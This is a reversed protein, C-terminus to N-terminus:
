HGHHAFVAEAAGEAGVVSAVGALAHAGLVALLEREIDRDIRQGMSCPGGRRTIALFITRIVPTVRPSPRAITSSNARSPCVTKPHPRESLTISWSRRCTPESCSNAVTSM